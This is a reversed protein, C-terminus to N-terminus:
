GGLRGFIAEPTETAHGADQLRAAGTRIAGCLDAGGEIGRSALAAPLVRDLVVQM